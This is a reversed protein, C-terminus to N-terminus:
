IEGHSGCTFGLVAPVRRVMTGGGRLGFGGAPRSRAAAGVRPLDAGEAEKSPGLSSRRSNRVSTSGDRREPNSVGHHDIALQAGRFQPAAMFSWRWDATTSKVPPLIDMDQVRVNTTVRGMAERCVRATANELSFGRRGLVGALPCAARHHGRSDLTRGCRCTLSSLPLPQWLHRLFLVRLEQPQLRSEMARWPNTPVFSLVTMLSSDALCECGPIRQRSSLMGAVTGAQEQSVTWWRARTVRAWSSTFLGQQCSPLKLTRGTRGRSLSVAIFDVVDPNRAPDESLIRGLSWFAPRLLERQTESAWM